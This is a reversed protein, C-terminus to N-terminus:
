NNTTSSNQNGSTGLQQESQNIPSKGTSLFNSPSFQMLDPDQEMSRPTCGLICALDMNTNAGLSAGFSTGMLVDPRDCPSCGPIPIGNVNEAGDLASATYNPTSFLANSHSSGAAPVCILGGLVPQPYPQTWEPQNSWSSVMDSYSPTVPRPSCHPSTPIPPSPHLGGSSCPASPIPMPASPQNFPASHQNRFSEYLPNLMPTSTPIGDSAAVYRPKSTPNSSASEGTTSHIPLGATDTINTSPIMHSSSALSDEGHGPLPYSSNPTPWTPAPRVRRPLKDQNNYVECHPHKRLYTELNKRLPAANGTVKRNELTHWIPVHENLLLREGTAPDIPACNPDKDQGKYEECEPHKKLYKELNRRLPAANGAIKRHERRNWITVHKAAEAAALSSPDTTDMTHFALTPVPSVSTPSSILQIQVPPCPPSQSPNVFYPTLYPVTPLHCSPRCVPSPSFAVYRYVITSLQRWTFHFYSPFPFSVAPRNHPSITKGTATTISPIQCLPFLPVRFVCGTHFTVSRPSHLLFLFLFLKCLTTRPVRRASNDKKTQNHLPASSNSHIRRGM